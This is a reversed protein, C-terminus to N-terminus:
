SAMSPSNGIKFKVTELLQDKTVPKRVFDGSELEPLLTLLEEAIDLASVFLIRVDKNIAKLRQYLQFGNIEPMRIDMIVLDYRPCNDKAFYALAEQPDAFIEVDFGESLLFSKYVLLIDPEDDVLMITHRLQNNHEPIAQESTHKLNQFLNASKSETGANANKSMSYVTYCHKGDPMYGDLEKFKYEKHLSLSKLIRYLDEGVVIANADAKRNIKACINMTPGFLDETRSFISSAVQCAGYDISVRFNISEQIGESHLKINVFDRSSIITSCCELVDRFAARDSPNYTKPFYLIVADGANKVLKAGFSSAITATANLFVSYFARVKRPESIAMTIRTSDVLDVFCVCYNDSRQFSIQEARSDYQDDFDVM